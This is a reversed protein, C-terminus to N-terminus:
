VATKQRRGTPRVIKHPKAPTAIVPRIAPAGAAVLESAIPDGHREASHLAATLRGNGIRGTGIRPVLTKPKKMPADRRDSLDTVARAAAIARRRMMRPTDAPMLLDQQGALLASIGQTQVPQVTSDARGDPNYRVLMGEYNRLVVAEDSASILYNPMLPIKGGGRPADVVYTPVGLGSIHGRL